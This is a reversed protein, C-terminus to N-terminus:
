IDDFNIDNHVTNYEDDIDDNTTSLSLLNSTTTTTTTTTTSSSNIDNNILNRYENNIEDNTFNINDYHEDYVICSNICDNKKFESWEENEITDYLKQKEIESYIYIADCKNQGDKTTTEWDRTGIVLLSGVSLVNGRKGKGRFKGRIICMRLVNNPCQVQCMSGGYLKIVQAYEEGEEEVIRLKGSPKKQVNKRAQSKHGSGGTLNRVM